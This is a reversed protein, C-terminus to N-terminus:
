SNVLLELEKWTTNTNQEYIIRVMGSFAHEKKGWYYIDKLLEITESKSAKSINKLKMHIYEAKEKRAKILTSRNLGCTKITEFGSKDNNFARVFGLDDYQLKISLDQSKFPNLLLPTEVDKETPNSIRSEVIPFLNAKYKQNCVLCSLLYNDWDYALWWYGLDCQSRYNRNKVANTSCFEGWDNEDDSLAKIEAKPRYHEVDGNDGTIQTECYGCKNEQAKFFDGKFDKWLDPFEPRSGTIVALRIQKKEEEVKIEFKPNVEPKQYNMM